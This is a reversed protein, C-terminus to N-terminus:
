VLTMPNTMRGPCTTEVQEQVVSVFLAPCAWGRCTRPVESSIMAGNAQEQHGRCYAHAHFYEPARQGSDPWGQAAKM